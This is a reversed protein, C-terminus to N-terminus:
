WSMEATLLDSTPLFANMEVMYFGSLIPRVISPTFLRAYLHPTKGLYKLRSQFHQTQLFNLCTRRQSMGTYSSVNPHDRNQCQIRHQFMQFVVEQKYYRFYLIQFNNYAWIPCFIEIDLIVVEIMQYQLRVSNMNVNLHGDLKLSTIAQLINGHKRTPTKM